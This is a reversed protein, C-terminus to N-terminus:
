SYVEEVDSTLHKGLTETLAADKDLAAVAVVMVAEMWGGDALDRRAATQADEVILLERRQEVLGDTLPEFGDVFQGLHASYPQTKDLTPACFVVTLVHRAGWAPDLYSEM